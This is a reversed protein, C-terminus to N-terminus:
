WAEFFLKYTGQGARSYPSVISANTGRRPCERADGQYRAEAVQCRQTTTDRDGRRLASIAAPYSHSLVLLIREYISLGLAKVPPPLLIVCLCPGDNGPTPMRPRRPSPPPSASGERSARHSRPLLSLGRGGGAGLSGVIISATCALIHIHIVNYVIYKSKECVVCNAIEDASLCCIEYQERRTGARPVAVAASHPPM